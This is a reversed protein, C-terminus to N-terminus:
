FKLIICTIDDNFSTKSSFQKLEEHLKSAFEEANLNSNDQTFKILGQVGFLEKQQNMIEIIGDSYFIFIDGTSFNIIQEQYNEQPAFGLPFNEGKIKDCQGTNQHFHITATHGCDIISMQMQELDVRAICATVFNEISMLADSMENRAATVIKRLPPLISTNKTKNLNYIARLFQIKTAAGCLAASVGKGMVDGMFLDLHQDDYKVFDYFDGGIDQSPTSFSAAQMKQTNKPPLGSLLQSQIENGIEIEKKRAEYEIKKLEALRNKELSVLKKRYVNISFNILLVMIITIGLSIMLNSILTESINKIADEETQEVIIYWGLEPIFRTNCHITNRARTFNLRTENSSIVQDALISIGQMERLNKTKDAATKSRLIIDCKDDIFYITRNYKKQYEDILKGVFDMTLGIGTAGIFKGDRDYVKYNVFITFTDENAMDPDCNIEYDSQMQKVRYYWKDRPETPKVKKLIGTSHYYNKTKDSVFFSTVTNNEKQIKELYNRIKTEDKEGNTVWDCLFTDNAMFSSISIPKVMDRLIESYVNDSTLPLTSEKIEKRLSARSVYYSMFSTAFFGSLLLLSILSIFKVKHNVMFLM